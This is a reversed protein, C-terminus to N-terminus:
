AYGLFENGACGYFFCTGQLPEDLFRFVNSSPETFLAAGCASARQGARAQASGRVRKRAAPNATPEIGVPPVMWFSEIYSKSDVEDLFGANLGKDNKM